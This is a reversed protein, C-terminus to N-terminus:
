ARSEPRDPPARQTQTEQAEGLELERAKLYKLASGLANMLSWALGPVGNRFNQHFLYHRLFQVPATLVLAVVGRRKGRRVIEAAGLTSYADLKALSESLNRVTYHLVNGRLAGVPGQTEVREHVAADTWGARRRDFLRVVDDRSEPGHSLPRGMFVTVRRLRYAPCPPEGAAMLSRISEALEPLVVEDADLHLIWDNAAQEVSWRKQAGYGQFPHSLVRAGLSRCIEVTRDTSGSDVVVVEDVFPLARLTRAIDREENCTIIVATLRPM